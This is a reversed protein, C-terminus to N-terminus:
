QIGLLLPLIFCGAMAKAQSHIQKLFAVQTKPDAFANADESPPSIGVTYSPPFARLAADSEATFSIRNAHRSIQRSEAATVKIPVAFCNGRQCIQIKKIM